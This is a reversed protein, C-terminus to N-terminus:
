GVRGRRDEEPTPARVAVITVTAHLAQGAHPANFDARIVDGEIATLTFRLSKGDPAKLTYREGVTLVLGPPLNARLLTRVLDAHWPGYADEPPIEFRRTEGARLGLVRNELAPFLQGSGIMVAIPGCQGTSDLPTGDALTVTYELTVVRGDAVEM